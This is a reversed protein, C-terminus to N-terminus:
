EANHFPRPNGAPVHSLRSDDLEYDDNDGHYYHRHHLNLRSRMQGQVSVVVTYLEPYNYGTKGFWIVKIFIFNIAMIIIAPLIPAPNPRNIYLIPAFNAPILPLFYLLPLPM